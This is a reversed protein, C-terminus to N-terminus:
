IHPDLSSVETVTGYRLKGGLKPTEALAASVAPGLIVAACLLGIIIWPKILKKM